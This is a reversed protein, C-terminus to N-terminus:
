ACPIGPGVKKGRRERGFLEASMYCMESYSHEWVTSRPLSRCEASEALFPHGKCLYSNQKTKNQKTKNQKTKNQKQKTKDSNLVFGYKILFFL